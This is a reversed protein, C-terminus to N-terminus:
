VSLAEQAGIPWDEYNIVLNLQVGAAVGYVLAYVTEGHRCWIAHRGYTQFTPLAVIGASILDPFPTVGATPDSVDGAFIDVGTVGAVTSHGDPGYIGVTRINWVRGSAPGQQNNPSILFPATGATLLTGFATLRIPNPRTLAAIIKQQNQKHEEGFKAFTGLAVDFGLVDGM